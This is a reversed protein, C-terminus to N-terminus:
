VTEAEVTKRRRALAPVATLGALLMWASSVEPVPSTVTFYYGTDASLTGGLAVAGGNADLGYTSWGFRGGHITGNYIDTTLEYHFTGPTTEVLDTGRVLFYSSQADTTPVAFEMYLSSVDVGPDPTFDLVVRSSVIQQGALSTFTGDDAVYGMYMVLYSVGIRSPQYSIELTEGAFAPSAFALASATATIGLLRSLPRSLM